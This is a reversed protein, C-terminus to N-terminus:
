IHILSLTLPIDPLKDIPLSGTITGNTTNFDLKDNPIKDPLATGDIKSINIYKSVSSDYHLISKNPPTGTITVDTLDDLSAVNSTGGGGQGGTTKVIKGDSDLGLHNGSSVSGSQVNDLYVDNRFRSIFDWIHQGIWKM